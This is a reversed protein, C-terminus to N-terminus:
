TYLQTDWLKNIKTSKIFRKINKNMIEDLEGHLNKDHFKPYRSQTTNQGMIICTQKTLGNTNM